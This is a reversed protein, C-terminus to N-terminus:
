DGSTRARRPGAMQALTVGALILALAPPAREPIEEGLFTVGFILAWIPVHFNVTVFFSPGARRIVILLLVTALATPGLGLWVVAAMSAPRWDVAGVAFPTEVILATPVILFSALLLTAAGFSLPDCPPARKAVVSGMAYGTAAGICALQAIVEIAGGGIREIADVGILVVAGVFGLGFGLVRPWTLGEGPVFFHAFPLVILPTTALFIATLGADIHGQAWALLTFPAANAAIAAGLAFLWVRRDRPLGPGLLYAMALMAAAGIAIRGAAITFPPLDDVAVETVPFSGGWLIGLTAVLAWNRWDDAGKM